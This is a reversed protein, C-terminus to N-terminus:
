QVQVPGSKLAAILKTRESALWAEVDAETKLVRREVAVFQIKPEVLQAAQQRAKEVRAPIAEAETRRAALNKADLASLLAQDSGLDPRAPAELSADKLIRAQDATSVKCWVADAALTEMAKRYASEHASHAANVAQRLLDALAKLVPAVPDPEALLRRNSLIADRQEIWPKAEAVAGAHTTLRELTGWAPLRKSILERTKKWQAIRARLDDAKARLNALRDNGVLKEIDEIDTLSPRAPLPPDGGAQEALRKVAAFFEPAKADV